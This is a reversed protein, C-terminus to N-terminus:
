PRLWVSKSFYKGFQSQRASFYLFILSVPNIVFYIINGLFNICRALRSPKDVQLSGFAQGSGQCLTLCQDRRLSTIPTYTAMDPTEGSQLTKFPQNAVKSKDVYCGQNRLLTCDPLHYLYISM